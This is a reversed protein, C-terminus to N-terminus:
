GRVVNSVTATSVGLQDAIEAQTMGRAYMGKIRQLTSDSITASARPTARQKVKTMDTNNLIKRLTSDSIAGAQIAEWERDTIDVQVGKKNSGLRQRVDQLAKSEAKKIADGSMGPNAKKQAEVRSRAILQAQREKPANMQAVRLKASLSEVESAYTKKASPSQELRPTSRMSARAQNALSKLTNAHNAYIEEMQTGSSLERADSVSAMGTSKQTAKVVKGTDRYVKKGSNYRALEAETMKSTDTIEKSKTYTRGTDRYVREGRDWAAKEAETMGRTSTLEKRENIQVEGSARSIITSSGGGKKKGENAQYIDALEQINNDKYSQKYDLNHKVSDIVVMSHKVARAIEDLSAGKITMDTILNSVKGMEMNKTAERKKEDTTIQKVLSSNVGYKKSLEETSAGAKYEKQIDKAHPIGYEAKNDFNKLQPLPNSTRIKGDNNPIVIVNDGDFDAGSLREAVRANIGVADVAQGLIKKGEKNKNNVTLEPIEFTGGHPYRILVVKEGDRFNPAYIENDKMSPIPLIVQTKQRPLAAAKLHEAASDCSDAFEQLMKSKVTPNNLKMIEDYEEKKSDSVVKLQQKALEPSQKSLMQSALSKSWDEWTGEGSVKNVASIHQKGDSGIYDVQSVVAGFPNEIDAKQEKFVQEPPTGTKKNTNYVIDYGPPIDDTYYAMGKMYHTGDVSIRSQMYRMGGLNLDEVGPRLEITGDKESGGQDGYRIFIRSSDVPVPSQVKRVEDDITDKYLGVSKVISPDNMYADRFTPWDEKTLVKLTTDKGTGLQRTQQYYVNYGEEKLAFVVADLQTKSIGMFLNVDSGVDVYGVDKVREKLAEILDTKEKAKLDAGPKLLNRITGESYGMKEAIALNSYGKEKLRNAEAVDLMTQQANNITVWSRLEGISMGMEEAIEKDSKNATKLDQYTYYRFEALSMGMGDAITQHARSIAAHRGSESQLKDQPYDKLFEATLNQVKSRFGQEHQYPNEGSGWPYRGSRRPMGYHALIRQASEVSMYPRLVIRDM